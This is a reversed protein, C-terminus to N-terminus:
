PLAMHGFEKTTTSLSPLCPLTHTCLQTLTTQLPTCGHVQQTHQYLTKCFRWSGLDNRIYFYQTFSCYGVFWLPVRDYCGSSQQLSEAFGQIIPSTGISLPMNTAHTLLKYTHPKVLCHTRVQVYLYNELAVFNRVPAFKVNCLKCM